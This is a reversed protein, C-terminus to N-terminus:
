IVCKGNRKGTRRDGKESDGRHETKHLSYIGDNRNKTTKQARKTTRPNLKELDTRNQPKATLYNANTTTIPPPVTSTTLLLPQERSSKPNEDGSDDNPPKCCSSEMDRAEDDELDSDTFAENIPGKVPSTIQTVPKDLPQNYATFRKKM